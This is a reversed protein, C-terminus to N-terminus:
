SKLFSQLNLIIIINNMIILYSPYTLLVLLLIFIYLIKSVKGQVNRRKPSITDDMNKMEPAEDLRDSM